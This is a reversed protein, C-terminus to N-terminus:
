RSAEAAGVVTVPVSRSPIGNAVVQLASDGLEITKPVDFRTSVIRTGTAVGMSSFDHTTAYTVIGTKSNTIRVLPYNTSVQFEDGFANAQSLGNFQTGFIEYSGGAAVDSPAKTITPRWANLFTGTTKYVEQGNIMVEGTPLLLTSPQFNCFAAVPEPILKAGNFEYFSWTNAPPCAASAAPSAPAAAAAAVPGGAHAKIREYRTQARSLRDNTFGPPNAQVFVNGNPLLNAFADGAGTNDPFDPGATWPGSLTAARPGGFGLDLIATHGVPHYITCANPDSAPGKVTCVAGTAFVTGDPRLIAPGIEGPPFYVQGHDWHIGDSASNIDTAPLTEPTKGAGVWMTQTPDANPIFRQAFPYDTMNVTLVSGDPLLTFGEEAHVDDKGTTNVETWTLTKPDLVAARKSFKQGLLMRGDALFSWPSDGVTTWGKPPAVMTWTNAKPDYVAMKNTFAFVLTNTNELLYEGGILLVRGDLLVGGSTAYPIYDNPLSAVVSYTGNVYSGSKDPFFCYWDFLFGGQFLLSGDTLVFGYNIGDLPTGNKLQTVTPTGSIVTQALAGLSTGALLAAALILSKRFM